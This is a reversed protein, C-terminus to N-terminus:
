RRRAKWDAWRAHSEAEFRNMHTATCNTGLDQDNANPWRMMPYEWCPHTQPRRQCRSGSLVKRVLLAGAGFHSSFGDLFIIPGDSVSFRADSDSFGSCLPTCFGPRPCCLTSTGTGGSSAPAQRCPRNEPQKPIHKVRFCVRVHAFHLKTNMMTRGYLGRMLCSRGTRVGNQTWMTRKHM